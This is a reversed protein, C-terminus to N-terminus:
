KRKLQVKPKKSKVKPEQHGIRGTYDPEGTGGGKINRAARAAARREAAIQIQKIEAPSGKIRKIAEQGANSVRGEFNDAAVAPKKSKKVLSSGSGVTFVGGKKRLGALVKKGSREEGEHRRKQTTPRSELLSDLVIECAREYFQEKLTKM